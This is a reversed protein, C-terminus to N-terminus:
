ETELKTKLRQLGVELDQGLMKDFDMFLLMLNMPYNMHGDFGWIVKTMNSSLSDTIMYVKDKSEFPKIFRIEFDIRKGQEIKVIEQEGKGVSDAKSDWASIFGVTGDTGQYTKKMLPDMMAWKSFNNQNRLYKIYDFVEQNPKNITIERKVAYDKKVFLAIILLLVVISLLVFVIKKLIKM